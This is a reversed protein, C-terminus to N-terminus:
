SVFICRVLTLSGPRIIGNMPHLITKEVMCKKEFPTLVARFASGVTDKAGQAAVQVGYSLQEFRVEPTSLSLNVKRSLHDYKEYFRALGGTLMEEVNKTCLTSHMSRRDTNPTDDQAGITYPDQLYHFHLTHYLAHPFEEDKPSQDAAPSLVIPLLQEDIETESTDM